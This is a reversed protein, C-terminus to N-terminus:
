AADMVRQGLLKVRTGTRTPTGGDTWVKFRMYRSVRCLEKWAIRLDGGGTAVDFVWRTLTGDGDLDEYLDYWKADDKCDIPAVQVGIHVTTVDGGGLIFQLHLHWREYGDVLFAPGWEATAEDTTDVDPTITDFLTAAHDPAAEVYNLRRIEYVRRARTRASTVRSGEAAM